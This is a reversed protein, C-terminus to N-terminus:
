RSKMDKEREFEVFASGRPKGTIKNTIIKVSKVPGFREMEKLLKKETTEYNLRSVIVTKYPDSSPDINPDKEPNGLPSLCFLLDVM